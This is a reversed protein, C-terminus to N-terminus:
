RRERRAVRLAASISRLLWGLRRVYLLALSSADISRIRGWARVYSPPPALQFALWRLQRRWPQRMWQGVADAGDVEFLPNVEPTPLGLRDALAEGEPLQRLGWAFAYLGGLEEALETAREWAHDPVYEIARELDDLAHADVEVGQTVHLAVHMARAPRNLTTVRQGAVVISATESSLTAWITEPHARLGKLRWHLDLSSPPTRAEYQLAHEPLPPTVRRQPEYGLGQLLQHTAEVEADPVFIDADRYTRSGDPYWDAFSGGKLLISPIGAEYLATIVRAAAEDALLSRVVPARNM